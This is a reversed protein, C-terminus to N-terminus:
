EIGLWRLPAPLDIAAFDVQLVRRSGCHASAPSAHLIATRYLWTDGADALCPFRGCQAVLAEIESELVKGARHSGPAVVLPAGNAPVLDLHIRATLMGEIIAFPPEVHVIGAKRSWPGFGAVEARDHVAITRDQHWGLAWNKDASKDFLIARVPRASAGITRAALAVLGHDALWLALSPNRSIRVGAPRNDALGSLGELM